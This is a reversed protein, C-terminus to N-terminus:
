DAADGAHEDGEDDDHEDSSGDGSDTSDDAHEEASGSDASEGAHEDDALAVGGFMLGSLVLLLNAMFQIRKM